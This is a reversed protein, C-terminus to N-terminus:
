TAGRDTTLVVAPVMRPLSGAGHGLLHAISSKGTGGKTGVVAVVKAV